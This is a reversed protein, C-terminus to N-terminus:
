RGHIDGSRLVDAPNGVGSQRMGRNLVDARSASLPLDVGSYDAFDAVGLRRSMTLAAALIAELTERDECCFAPLAINREGAVRYIDKVAQYETVLPM